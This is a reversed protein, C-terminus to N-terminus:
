AAWLCEQKDQVKRAVRAMLVDPNVRDFFKELDLDVVFRRGESVFDRAAFVAQHASRGPRFGYGSESFGPDFLPQLVQHLAQQILRNVATPIGLQRVGGGPKPIEVGLVPQAEYSGNLLREKLAPWHRVLYGRLDEMRLGDVGPVGRNSQVRRLASMMNEREVVAKM